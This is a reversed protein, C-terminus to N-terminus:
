IAPAINYYQLSAVAEFVSQVLVIKRHIFIGYSDSQPEQQDATVVNLFDPSNYLPNSFYFLVTKSCENELRLGSLVFHM